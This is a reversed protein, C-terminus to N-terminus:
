FCRLKNFTKAQTAKFRQCLYFGIPNNQFALIQLFCRLHDSSCEREEKESEKKSEKESKGKEERDTQRHRDRERQSM